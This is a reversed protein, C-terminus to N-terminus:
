RDKNCCCGVTRGGGAAAVVVAVVTQVSLLLQFVALMALVAQCTRRM